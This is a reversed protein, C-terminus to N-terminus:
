AAVGAPADPQIESDAVGLADCIHGFTAPAVRRRRGVEVASIYTASKGIKEALQTVSLRAAHRLKRMKAGDIEPNAHGVRM